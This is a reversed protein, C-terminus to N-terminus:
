MHLLRCDPALSCLTQFLLSLEVLHLMQQAPKRESSVKGPLAGGECLPLCVGFGILCAVSLSAYSFRM